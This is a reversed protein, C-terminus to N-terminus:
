SAARERETGGGGDLGLVTAQRTAFAAFAEPILRCVTERGARRTM